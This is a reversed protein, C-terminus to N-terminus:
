PSKIRARISLTMGACFLGSGVHFAIQAPKGSSLGAIAADAFCVLAGLAFWWFLARWQRWVALAIALGGLWIDRLGVVHHLEYGKIEKALGFNLAATRPVIMFRIGIITLLLGAAVCLAIVLRNRAKVSADTDQM